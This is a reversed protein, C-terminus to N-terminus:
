SLNSVMQYCEGKLNYVTDELSQRAENLIREAREDM